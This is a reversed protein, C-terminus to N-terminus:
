GGPRRRVADAMQLVARELIPRPTAFVFRLHNEGAAGCSRGDTLAVAGAQTAAATVADSGGGTAYRDAGATATYLNDLANGTVADAFATGAFGRVAEASGACRGVLTRRCGM